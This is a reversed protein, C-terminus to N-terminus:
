LDIRILRDHLWVNCLTSLFTGYIEFPMQHVQIYKYSVCTKQIQKTNTLLLSDTIGSDPFFARDHLMKLQRLLLQNAAHICHPMIVVEFSLLM